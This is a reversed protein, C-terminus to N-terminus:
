NMGEKDNREARVLGRVEGTKKKRREKGKKTETKSKRQM